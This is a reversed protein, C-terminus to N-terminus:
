KFSLMVSVFIFYVLKNQFHLSLNQMHDPITTIFGVVLIGTKFQKFFCRAAHINGDHQYTSPRTSCSPYTSYKWSSTHDDSSSRFLPPHKCNNTKGVSINQIVSSCVLILYFNLQTHPHGRMSHQDLQIANWSSGRIIIQNEIHWLWPFHNYSTCANRRVKWGDGELEHDQM